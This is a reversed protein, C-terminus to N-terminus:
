IDENKISLICQKSTLEDITFREDILERTLVFDKNSKIYNIVSTNTFRSVVSLETIEPLENMVDECLEEVSCITILAEKDWNEEDAFCDMNAIFSNDMCEKILEERTFKKKLM